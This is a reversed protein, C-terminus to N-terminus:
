GLLTEGIREAYGFWGYVGEYGNANRSVYGNSNGLLVVFKDLGARDNEEFM